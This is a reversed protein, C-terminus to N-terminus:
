ESCSGRATQVLTRHMHVTSPKRWLLKGSSLDKVMVIVTVTASLEGLVHVHIYESVVSMIINKSSM